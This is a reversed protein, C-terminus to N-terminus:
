VTYLSNTTFQYNNGNVIRAKYLGDSISKVITIEPYKNKLKECWIERNIEKDFVVVRDNNM